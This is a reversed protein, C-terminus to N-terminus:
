VSTLYTGWNEWAKTPSERSFLATQKAGSIPSRTYFTEADTQTWGASSCKKVASFIPAIQSSFICRSIRECKEETFHILLAIFDLAFKKCKKSEWMFYFLGLYKRLEVIKV